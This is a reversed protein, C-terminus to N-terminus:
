YQWASKLEHVALRSIQTSGDRGFVALMDEDGSLIAGIPMYVQGDNAFIEISVRDVLVQLGIRGDDPRLSAHNDGCSLREAKTDYEIVV